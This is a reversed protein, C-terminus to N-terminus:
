SAQHRPPRELGEPIFGVHSAPLLAPYQKSIDWSATTSHLIPLAASAGCCTVCPGCATHDMDQMPANPTKKVQKSGHQSTAATTQRKLRPSAKAYGAHGAKAMHGGAQRQHGTDCSLQAVSAQAQIPLAFMLLWLLWTKVFRNM